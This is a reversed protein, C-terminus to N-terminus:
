PSSAGQDAKRRPLLLLVRLCPQRDTVQLALLYRCFSRRQLGNQVKLIGHNQVPTGARAVDVFWRVVRVELVSNTRGSRHALLKGVPSM